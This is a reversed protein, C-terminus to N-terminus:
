RVPGCPPHSDAVAADSALEPRDFPVYRQWYWPMCTDGLVADALYKMIGKGNSSNTMILVGVNKDEALAAYNNWGDDSGEKFVIKGHPSTYVGWGLAYSLDIVRNEDTTEPALPPFQRKSDIAIQARVLEKRSKASLGDGRQVAALFAAYDAPTTDMSGAARVGGRQKHGLPKSDPDYGIALNQAFDARWTMSSTNMGFRAYVREKILADVDIGKGGDFTGNDLVFQLLNIGEGSYAFRMGPDFYFKLKGNPDYDRGPPFFRFNPFGPRHSLLIRPTLKRWREDGALDAYKEYEPLPKPLYDAISRDLDIRGADVLTMVAYAFMAKTLSAAYMVTGSELPLNQEKDRLGYTKLYAVKGDAVIALAVGPVNAGNMVRAVEADIKATDIAAGDARRLTHTPATACAALALSLAASVLNRTM